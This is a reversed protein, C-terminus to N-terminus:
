FNRIVARLGLKWLNFTDAVVSKKSIQSVRRYEILSILMVSFVSFFFHRQYYVRGRFIECQKECLQCQPLGAQPHTLQPQKQTTQKLGSLGTVTIVIIIDGGWLFLGLNCLSKDYIISTLWFLLKWKAKPQLYSCKSNGWLQKSCIPWYGVRERASNGFRHLHRLESLETESKFFILVWM